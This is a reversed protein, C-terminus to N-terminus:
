SQGGNIRMNPFKIGKPTLPEDEQKETHTHPVHESLIFSFKRYSEEIAKAVKDRDKKGDRHMAYIAVVVGAAAFLAEGTWQM